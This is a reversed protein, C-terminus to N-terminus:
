VCPCCSRGSGMEYISITAFLQSIRPLKMYGAPAYQPQKRQKTATQEVHTRNARAGKREFCKGYGRVGGRRRLTGLVDDHSRSSFPCACGAVPPERNRAWNRRRLGCRPAIFAMTATVVEPGLVEAAAVVGAEDGPERPAQVVKAVRDGEM